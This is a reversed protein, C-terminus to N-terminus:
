LCEKKVESGLQKQKICLHVIKSFFNTGHNLYYQGVRQPRNQGKFHM